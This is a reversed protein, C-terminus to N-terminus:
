EGESVFDILEPCVMHVIGDEDEIIGKTFSCAGESWELLDLGWEHFLGHFNEEKHDTSKYVIVRRMGALLFNCKGKIASMVSECMEVAEDMSLSASKGGGVDIIVRENGNADKMVSSKIM